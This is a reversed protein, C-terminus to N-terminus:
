EGEYEAVTKMVYNTIPLIIIEYLIKLPIESLGIIIMTSIDMVGGLAIPYFISTDVIAGAVSSLIARISFGNHKVAKLRMKEFVIDNAFDGAIFATLSGLLIRPTNGLVTELAEQGAFTASAPLAIGLQFVLVMLLNMAFAFYCTIRSWKYGYVESFVDSLIYTIPFTIMAGTMTFPGITMEKFVIVNSILLCSVNLITLALQLFSYKEKKEM